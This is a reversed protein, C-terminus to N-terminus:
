QAPPALSGDSSVTFRAVNSRLYPALDQVEGEHEVRVAGANGLKVRAVEGAAYQRREGARLLGAELTRGNSGVIEVWSEGQFSLLLAPAQPRPIPTLSAVMPTRERPTDPTVAREAAPAASPADLPTAHGTVPRIYQRSAMWVPVMIAATILVYVTRRATQEALRRMPPTYSRPTLEPAAIASMTQTARVDQAIGLFRAYSRLQGRLFVPAGVRGWDEAELSELVRTPIHLKQAVDSLGLGAAERAHRLRRGVGQEPLVSPDSPHNM